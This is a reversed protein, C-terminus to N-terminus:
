WDVETGLATAVAQARRRAVAVHEDCVTVHGLKRGPRSAKGYLHVRAGADVGLGRALRDRPDSGDLPGVVNVMSAPSRLTPDGLPLDLVARLHNEFQSTVAADITHHGTNHPRAALENVTLRDDAWFLEVALIGVADVSEAIAAGLRRAEAVITADVEAPAVVERCMGEVQITTVPDYVVLDGSPRRAVLVALEADLQLFPELVLTTGRALMPAAIDDVDAPDDVVFVGRGDYGGHSVKVVVPGAIAAVGDALDAPSRVISWPPVPFGAEALHARMGAKDAVLRLTDPRPFLRAGAAELRTLADLDVVEHDFTVVDVTDVFRELDGQSLPSGLDTWRSVAPAPDAEDEALFRLEVDLAIAAQHTMRALQGGGIVGVTPRHTESM